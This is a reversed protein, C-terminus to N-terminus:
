VLCLFQLLCCITISQAVKEKKNEIGQRIIRIKATSEFPEYERKQHCISKIIYKM